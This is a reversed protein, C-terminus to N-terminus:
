GRRSAPPAARRRPAARACGRRAPAPHRHERVGAAEADQAGVGALRGPQLQGAPAPSSLRERRHQRGLRAEFGTSMSPEAFAAAYSAASGNTSAVGLRRRRDDDEDRGHRHRPPRRRGRDRPRRAARAALREEGDDHAGPGGAPRSPPRRTGRGPSPRAPARGRPPARRTAGGAPRAGHRRQRADVGLRRAADHGRARPRRRRTARGAAARASSSAYPTRTTGSRM